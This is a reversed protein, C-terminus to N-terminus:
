TLKSIHKFILNLNQTNDKCKLLLYKQQTETNVSDKLHTGDLICARWRHKMNVFIKPGTSCKLLSTPCKPLSATLTWTKYMGCFACLIVFEITSHFRRTSCLNGLFRFVEAHGFLCFQRYKSYKFIPLDSTLIWLRIIADRSWLMRQLM